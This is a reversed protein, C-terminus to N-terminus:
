GALVAWAYALTPRAKKKVGHGPEVRGDRAALSFRAVVLECCLSKHFERPYGGERGHRSYPNAASVAESVPTSNCFILLKTM